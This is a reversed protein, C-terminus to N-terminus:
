HIMNINEQLYANKENCNITLNIQIFFRYVNNIFFIQMFFANIKIYGLRILAKIKKFQLFTKKKQLQSKM